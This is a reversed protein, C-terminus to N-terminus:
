AVIAAAAKSESRYRAPPVGFERKFARNFAAESEYGVEPAIEAVSKTTARLAQAGLGLRWKTLYSMPPEGLYHRFREALVSRSIGVERALDAITWPHMPRQHIAALAKGVEPDRTGALWGTEQKPLKSIYRRITEIFLTESLKALIAGAGPENAIKQSVSFKLSNELWQGSADERINIRVLPPLGNLLVQGLQPDCALFGCIWRSCGPGAGGARVLDLNQNVMHPLVEDGIMIETTEGYGLTHATGHPLAVIDGASVEVRQGGPELHIYAKGRTLLHFIILHGAGPSLFPIGSKSPGSKFCWPESFECNFFIASDLKIARLVQSLVDM